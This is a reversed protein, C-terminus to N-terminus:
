NVIVLFGELFFFVFFIKFVFWVISMFFFSIQEGDLVDRDLFFYNFDEIEFDIGEQLNNNFDQNVVDFFFGDNLFNQVLRLRFLFWGVYYLYMVVIVGMVM